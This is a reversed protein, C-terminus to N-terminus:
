RKFDFELTKLDELQCSFDYFGNSTAVIFIVCTDFIHGSVSSDGSAINSHTKEGKIFSDRIKYLWENITSNDIKVGNAFSYFEALM